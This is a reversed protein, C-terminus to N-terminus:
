ISPTCKENMLISIEHWFLYGFLICVERSPLVDTCPIFKQFTNYFNQCLNKDMTVAANLQIHAIINALENGSGPTNTYIDVAQIFENWDKPSNHWYNETLHRIAVFFTIIMNIGGNVHNVLAYKKALSEGFLALAEEELLIDQNADPHKGLYALAKELIFDPTANQATVSLPLPTNSTKPDM